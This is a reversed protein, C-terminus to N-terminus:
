YLFRRNEGSREVVMGAVGSGILFRDISSVDFLLEFPVDNNDDVEEVEEEEDTWCWVFLGGDDEVVVKNEDAALFCFVNDVLVATAFEETIRELM